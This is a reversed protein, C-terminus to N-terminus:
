RWFRWWPKKVVPEEYKPKDIHDYPFRGIEFYVMPPGSCYPLDMYRDEAENGIRWKPDSWDTRSKVEACLFGYPIRPNRREADELTTVFFKACWGMRDGQAKAVKDEYDSVAFEDTNTM